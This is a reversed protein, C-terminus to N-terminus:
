VTQPDYCDVCKVQQHFMKSQIYSGYVYFQDDIQGDVHYTQVSTDVSWPQTIEPLFYNLFSSDAHHGPHVFGQRAHCKAFAGIQAVNNSNVDAFGFNILVDWGNGYKAFELHDRGQGNCFECAVNM